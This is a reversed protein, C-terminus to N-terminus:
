KDLGTNSKNHTTKGDENEPKDELLIGIHVRANLVYKQNRKRKLLGDIVAGEVCTVRESPMYSHM